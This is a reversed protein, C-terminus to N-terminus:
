RAVSQRYELSTIGFYDKFSRIFYASQAVAHRFVFPSHEHIIFSLLAFTSSLLIFRYCTSRKRLVVSIILNQLISSCYYSSPFRLANVDDTLPRLPLCSASPLASSHSSFPVVSIRKSAAHACNRSSWFCRVPVAFQFFCSYRPRMYRSGSSPFVRSDLIVGAYVGPM